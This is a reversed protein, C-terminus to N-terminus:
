LRTAKGGRYTAVHFIQTLIHTYISELKLWVLGSNQEVTVSLAYKLLLSMIECHILMAYQLSVLVILELDGTCTVHM